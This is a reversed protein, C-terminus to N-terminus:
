TPLYQALSLNHIQATLQYATQLQSTLLSLQTAVEAPDVNDMQGTQTQLLTMQDSMESNAQTIQSQAQGLQSQAGAISAAGQNISTLATTALTQEAGSSLGIGGFESLMAYGQALQQFGPSNANTSTEITNGPSISNSANVSSATTWKAGWDPSQFQAAFPGSLFGQMQSGTINAAQPSTPSFGFYTTFASDIASKASSTPTSFYDDVPAVGSNQGAFVYSDGSTSNALSIFQELNSQGLTQLTAGSNDSSTWATLSSAASQASSLMSSLATQATSLNTQTVGNATTMAQLLDDQSRLALEYGSQDGLQLGLNAYQGSSSEVELNALQTQAQQVAPLMATALYSSSVSSITM